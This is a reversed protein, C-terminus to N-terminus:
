RNYESIAGDALALIPYVRLCNGATATILLGAVM